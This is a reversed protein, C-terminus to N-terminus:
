KYDDNLEKIPVIHASKEQLYDYNQRDTDMETISGAM